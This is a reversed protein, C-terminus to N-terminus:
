IIWIVFCIILIYEGGWVVWEYDFIFVYGFFIFVVEECFWCWEIVVLVCIVLGYFVKCVFVVDSFNYVYVYEDM